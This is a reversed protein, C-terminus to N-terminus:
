ETINIKDVFNIDIKSEQADIDIYNSSGNNQIYTNQEGDNYDYDVDNVSIEGFNSIDYNYDEEKGQLTLKIDGDTSNVSTYGALARISVLGNINEIDINSCSINNLNIDGDQNKLEIKDLESNNFKVKNNYTEAELFTSKLQNFNTNGSTNSYKIDDIICNIIDFDGYVNIEGFNSNVNNFKTGGYDNSYVIENSYLNKINTDGGGANIIINGNGLSNNELNKFGTNINEFSSKGYLNEFDLYETNINKINSKGNNLRVSISQSEIDHLKLDGDQSSVYLNESSFDAISVNGNTRININEFQINKPMYIEISSKNNYDYYYEENRFLSFLKNSLRNQISDFNDYITLIGNSTYYDIQYGNIYNYYNLSIKYNDAEIFKVDIINYNNDINIDISEFGDLESIEASRTTHGSSTSIYLGGGMFYGVFSIVIGVFLLLFGIRLLYNKKSKKPKPSILNGNNDNNNYM